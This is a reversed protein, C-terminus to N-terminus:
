TLLNQTELFGCVSCNCQPGEWNAILRKFRELNEASKISEPLANLLTAGEFRISKVGFTTQHVRPVSINLPRRSSHRCDPKVFIDKMYDPNLNNLTKYIKVCLARM